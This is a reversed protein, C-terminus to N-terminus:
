INDLTLQQEEELTDSDEEDEERFRELQSFDDVNIRRSKLKKLFAQIEQPINDAQLADFLDKKNLQLKKEENLWNFILKLTEKGMGVQILSDINDYFEYSKRIKKAESKQENRDYKYKDDGLLLATKYISDILTEAYDYEALIITNKLAEIIKNSLEDETIIGIKEPYKNYIARIILASDLLYNELEYRSVIHLHVNHKNAYDILKSCWEDNLGDRDRVFHIEIEKNLFDKLLNHMYFPLKDDKGRARHISITNVGHFVKTNLISDMAELMSTDADEFFVMKGSIVSKALEYNDIQAIFDHVQAENTLPSSIANETTIPIISDPSVTKIISPSHTSIIIQIKLERQIQMLSKALAIQMNPHLHADPEDLLVVKCQHPCVSYIPALIQLIQMYGSGSSNFDLSLKKNDCEEYYSAAVYEDSEQNFDVNGLHFGFDFEMRKCLREFNEPSETKLDLVLNRIISSVMGSALHRRIVAPFSREEVGHLGVFGSIFLPKYVHLKPSNSLEEPKSLCKVNYGGFLSSIQLVYKNGSDDELSITAGVRSNERKAARSIKAYYLERFNAISVGPLSNAGIGKERVKAKKDRSILDSGWLMSLSLNISQLVTTKGSSNEGVLISLPKLEITKSKFKKFHNLVVKFIMM